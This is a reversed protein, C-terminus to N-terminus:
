EMGEMRLANPEGAQYRLEGLYRSYKRMEEKFSAAGRIGMINGAEERGHKQVMRYWGLQAWYQQHSRGSDDVPTMGLTRTRTAGGLRRGRDGDSLYGNDSRKLNEGRKM